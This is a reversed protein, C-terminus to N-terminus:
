FNRVNLIGGSVCMSTLAPVKTVNALIAEKIQAATAAPYKAKYLAIAGTVCPASFSTGSATTFSSVMDADSRYGTTTYINEGPAFLDVSKWGYNSFTSMAGAANTSGVNILNESVCSGPYAPTAEVDQGSNGAAAVFLIDQADFMAAEEVFSNSSGEYSLNVAVVNVGLTKLEKFYRIALACDFSNFGTGYPKVVNAQIIRINWCVGAVGTGNAGDAGIIGSCYTGHLQSSSGSKPSDFTVNNNCAFNWGYYDNKKGNGNGDTGSVLSENPVQGLNKILDPHLFCGSDIVGVYISDSGVNGNAWAVDAGIGATTTSKLHWQSATYGPDVSVLANKYLTPQEIRIVYPSNLLIEEVETFNEMPTSVVVVTESFIEDERGQIANLLSYRVDSPTDEKFM